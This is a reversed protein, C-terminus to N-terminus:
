GLRIIFEIIFSTSELLFLFFLLRGAVQHVFDAMAQAVEETQIGEFGM